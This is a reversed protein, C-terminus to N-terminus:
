PLFLGRRSSRRESLACWDNGSRASGKGTLELLNGTKNCLSNPRLSKFKSPQRRRLKRQVPTNSLFGQEKGTVPPNRIPSLDSLSQTWWWGNGISGQFKRDGTFPASLAPM